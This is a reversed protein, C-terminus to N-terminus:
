RGKKDDLMRKLDEVDEQTLDESEVMTAFMPRISGGFVRKLFSRTEARVFDAQKIAPRYHYERGSKEYTIANKKLLRNILTKITKPNWTTRKSLLDVIRNATVPNEEWIATMVMQEAESIKPIRKM